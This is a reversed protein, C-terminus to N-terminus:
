GSTLRCRRVAGAGVGTQQGLRAYISSLKALKEQKSEGGGFDQAPGGGDMPGGRTREVMVSLFVLLVLSPVVSVGARRAMMRVRPRRTSLATSCPCTNNNEVTSM